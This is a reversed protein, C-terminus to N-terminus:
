SITVLKLMALRWIFVKWNTGFFARLIKHPREIGAEGPPNVRRVLEDFLMRAKQAKNTSGTTIQRAWANMEPTRALPNKVLSMEEPTLKEFLLVALRQGTYDKPRGKISFVSIPKEQLDTKRPETLANDARALAV